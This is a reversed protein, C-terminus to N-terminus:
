SLLVVSLKVTLRNKEETVFTEPAKTICLCDAPLPFPTLLREWEPGSSTFSVASVAAVTQLM